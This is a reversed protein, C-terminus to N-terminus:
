HQPDLAHAWSMAYLTAVDAAANVIRQGAAIDSTVAMEVATLWRQMHAVDNEGHYELFRYAGLGEGLLQRIRPLLAPVIRNGTGEIIYVAGLLAEAQSSSAM